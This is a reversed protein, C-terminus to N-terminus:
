KRFGSFISELAPKLRSWGRQLWHPSSNVPIRGIKVSKGMDEVLTALYPWRNSMEQMRDELQLKRNVAWGGVWDLLKNGTDPIEPIDWVGVQVLEGEVDFYISCPLREHFAKTMQDLFLKINEVQMAMRFYHKNRLHKDCHLIYWDLPERNM